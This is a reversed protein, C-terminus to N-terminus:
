EVFWTVVTPHLKGNTAASPNSRVRRIYGDKGLKKGRRAEAHAATIM